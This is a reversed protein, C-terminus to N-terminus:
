STASKGKGALHWGLVKRFIDKGGTEIVDGHAPIIRDFDWKDVRKASEGFSPRDGASAAYWIFRKQWIATGHTNNLGNFLKSFFGTTALEGSKSYQETAPLNFILDAEILTRDPKHNFVLEKNAHSGFYETDFERDFDEGIKLELKNSETFISSFPVNEIKQTARKEPLGEPGVVKATPYAAYWAGLFIHHEIDPAILYAVNGGLKAITDKVEPTLAVPSFVALGGTQLKV